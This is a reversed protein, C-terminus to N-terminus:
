YNVRFPFLSTKQTTVDPLKNENITYSVKDNRIPFNQITLYPIESFSFTFNSNSLFFCTFLVKKQITIINIYFYNNKVCEWQLKLLNKM